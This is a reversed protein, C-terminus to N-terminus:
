PDYGQVRERKFGAAHVMHQEDARHSHHTPNTWFVDRCSSEFEVRETKQLIRGQVEGVHLVDALAQLVVLRQPLHRGWGGRSGEAQRSELPGM